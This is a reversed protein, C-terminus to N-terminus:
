NAVIVLRFTSGIADTIRVAVDVIVIVIVYALIGNAPHPNLRPLRRLNRIQLAGEPEERDWITSKRMTKADKSMEPCVSGTKM